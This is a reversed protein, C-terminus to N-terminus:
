CRGACKASLATCTTAPLTVGPGALTLLVPVDFRDEEAEFRTCGILVDDNGRRGIVLLARAGYSIELEPAGGSLLECPTTDVPSELPSPLAQRSLRKQTLENCVAAEDGDYVRLEIKDIVSAAQASPFSLSYTAKSPEPECGGAALAALALGLPAPARPRAARAAPRRPARPTMM